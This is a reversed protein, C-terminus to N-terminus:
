KSQDIRVFLAIAVGFCAGAAVLGIVDVTHILEFRPNRAVNMLAIAGFIVLIAPRTQKM